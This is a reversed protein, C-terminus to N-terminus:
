SYALVETEFADVAEEVYLTEEWYPPVAEPDSIGLRVHTSHVELVTVVMDGIVLSEDVGRSIVQM